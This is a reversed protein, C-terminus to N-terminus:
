LNEVENEEQFLDAQKYRRLFAVQSELFMGKVSTKKSNLIKKGDFTNELFFLPLIESINILNQLRSWRM